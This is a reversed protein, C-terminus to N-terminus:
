LSDDEKHFNGVTLITGLLEFSDVVLHQHQWISNMLQAKFQTGKGWMFQTMKTFITSSSHLHGM